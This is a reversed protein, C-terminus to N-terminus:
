QFNSPSLMAFPTYAVGALENTGLNSLLFIGQDKIATTGAQCVM